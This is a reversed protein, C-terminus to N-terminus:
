RVDRKAVSECFVVRALCGQPRCNLFRVRQRPFCSDNKRGTNVLQAEKIRIEILRLRGTERSDFVEVDEAFQCDLTGTLSLGEDIGAIQESNQM